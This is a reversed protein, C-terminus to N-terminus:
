KFDNIIKRKKLLEPTSFTLIILWFLDGSRDQIYTPFAIGGILFTTFIIILFVTYESKELYIKRFILMLFLTFLISGLIGSRVILHNLMSDGSKVLVYGVGIIPHDKLIKKFDTLYGEGIDSYDNYSYRSDDINYDNNIKIKIKGFRPGLWVNYFQVPSLVSMGNVKFVHEAYPSLKAMSIYSVMFIAILLVVRKYKLKLILGCLLIFYFGMFSKSITLFGALNIVFIGIFYHIHKFKFQEPRFFFFSCVIGLFIGFNGPTNFTTVARIGLCLEVVSKGRLHQGEYLLLSISRILKDIEKIGFSSVAQLIGFVSLIVAMWFVIEFIKSIDIYYDKSLFYIIFVYMAIRCHNELDGLGFSLHFPYEGSKLTFITAILVILIFFIIPLIIIPLEKINNCTKINKIFLYIFILPLAIHDLRIPIKYTFYPGFLVILIWFILYNTCDKKVTNDL